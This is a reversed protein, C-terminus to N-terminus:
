SPIKLPIKFKENFDDHKEFPEVAAPPCIGKLLLASYWYVHAYPTPGRGRFYFL